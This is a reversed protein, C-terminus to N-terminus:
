ESGIQYIITIPKVEYNGKNINLYYDLENQAIEENRFVNADSISKSFGTPFNTYYKTPETKTRIIYGQKIDNM